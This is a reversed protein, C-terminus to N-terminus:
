PLPAESSQGSKVQAEIRDALDNYKRAFWENRGAQQALTGPMFSNGIDRTMSMQHIREAEKSYSSALVRLLDVDEQTFQSM